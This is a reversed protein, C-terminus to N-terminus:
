GTPFLTPPGLCVPRADSCCEEDSWGFDKSGDARMIACQGDQALGPEGNAWNTDSVSQKNLWYWEGTLSSRRMGIWVRKLSDDRIQNIKEYIQKQHDAADPFSILELQQDKCYQLSERWGDAPGIHVVEPTVTCGRFDPFKSIVPAPNGFPTGDKSEGFYVAMKSSAHWIVNKSTLLPVKVSVYNTGLPTWAPDTLPSTGIRVGDTHDKNVVITAFNQAEAVTNIVFCAAFDPEPILSLLLGPRYLIASGAYEVMPKDPDYKEVKTSEGNALLVFTEAQAGEALAPPIYFKLKEEKAPPLMTYLLGCTCNHRIACTHGFAVAMPNKASVTRYSDDKIYMQGVEYPQLDMTKSTKGGVTVKNARGANIIIIKFPQRETVTENVQDTTGQITPIPPIFYKTGLKDEPIILATQMSTNKLSITHVSVRKDSTIKLTNQSIESKNLEVKSDYRLEETNGASLNLSSNKFQSTVDIQTGDFLATIQIKNVTSNPFYYAINEPFAVIFDKGTSDESSSASNLAASILLLLVPTM